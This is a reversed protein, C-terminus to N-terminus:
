ETDQQDLVLQRAIQIKGRMSGSTLVTNKKGIHHSLVQNELGM